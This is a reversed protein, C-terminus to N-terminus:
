EPADFEGPVSEEAAFAPLPRGCHRYARRLEVATDGERERFKARHLYINVVGAQELKILLMQLRHAAGYDQPLPFMALPEPM